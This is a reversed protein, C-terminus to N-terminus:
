HACHGCLAPELALRDILILGGCCMCCQLSAEEGEALAEVLLVAHDITIASNPLFSLFAEYAECLREGRTLNPLHEHADKLPERPLAGCMWCLGALLAAEHRLQPTRWFFRMHHPPVGRHRKLVPGYRGSSYAQHLTRVSFPSLATWRVITSTRAEARLFRHALHLRRLDSRYRNDSAKM